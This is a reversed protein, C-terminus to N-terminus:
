GRTSRVQFAHLRHHRVQAQYRAKIRIRVTTRQGDKVRYQTSGIVLRQHSGGKPQATLQLTGRCASARTGCRVAVSAQVGSPSVQLSRPLPVVQDGTGASITADVSDSDANNSLDPDWTTSTVSAANTITFSEDLAPGTRIGLCELDLTVTVNGPNTNLLRFDRNIPQPENGLSIVGPPLDFTGVIGKSGDPCTVRQVSEGPRLSVTRVVHQFSLAHRHQSPAAPGTRDALERISLTAQSPTSNEVTFAWGGAVPESAVLRADGTLVEIGPSVAHHGSSVLLTFTHRGPAMMTTDKTLLPGVELGHSHGATVETDHPLCTGFLKVQAQGETDNFITFRYTNPTLSSARLVQVDAATGTGQDVHMVEVSGDSLYGGNPCTLDDTSVDGDQLSVYQEVKSVTLQHTHQPVTTNSSPLGNVQTRVTITKTEGSAISAFTCTLTQGSRACTSAGPTSSVFTSHDPLDDTVVVNQAPSLGHNTVDITWTVVDGGNATTRDAHKTIEVDAYKAVTLIVTDSPGHYDRWTTGPAADREAKPAGFYDPISATNKIEADPQVVGAAKVQATYTFTESGGNAAIPGPVVWRLNPDAATWGDVWAPGDTQVVNTLEDDPRDTVVVDYAPWTGTNTVKVTYTVSEGPKVEGTKNASKDITLLPEKVHTVASAPGVKDDYSGPAPATGPNTTVKNTRNTHVTAKNTLTAGALVPTGNNRYTDSVHGKLVLDYVRNSAAPALDGLYWGALLEGSAGPAVTFNAIAPDTGPCAPCTIADYGDVQLGDPVTDIVTADYYRVDKPVTVTVHWTVATGITTPDPTVTKSISPLVVTVADTDHAKYDGPNTASTSSRVGTETLDLSTTTADASNQYIAGGVPNAELKVQYGLNVSTGPPITALSLPATVSTKTWTLTRAASNWVGGSPVQEGTALPNGGSDVPDTGTPLTDVVVVDHAPSFSAGGAASVKLNFTALEGPAFRHGSGPTHTKDLTIRPEVVTTSTTAPPPSQPHGDLDKFTLTATNPVTAGRVNAAVDLVRASFHLVLEVDHGTTNAYTSPFTATVTNTPLEAVSVGGTPLAAGDLTCPIACLTGPVLQQQTGLPDVVTPTGYMTTNRPVTVKM